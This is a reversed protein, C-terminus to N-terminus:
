IYGENIMPERDCDDCDKREDCDACRKECEADIVADLDERTLISYPYENAHIRNGVARHLSCYEAMKELTFIFQKKDM